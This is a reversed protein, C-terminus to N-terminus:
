SKTISFYKNKPADNLSFVKDMQEYRPYISKLSICSGVASHLCSKGGTYLMLYFYDWEDEHFGILRALDTDGVICIDNFM